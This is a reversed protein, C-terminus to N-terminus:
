PLLSKLWRFAANKTKATLNSGFGPRGQSADYAMICLGVAVSWPGIDLGDPMRTEEFDGMRVPLELYDKVFDPLDPLRAGGGTLVVGAPLLKVRDIKKLHKNTLEFIDSLRASIIDAAQKKSSASSASFNKKMNEAEDITTKFGIALDSTINASGYPLVELSIPLGEEFVALSSTGAGIDILMAGVEKHRKPLVARAAAIPSAIVDEAMFGSLEAVRVVNKIDRSLATIFIAECELKSGVMGTPDPTKFQGDVTFSLAFSHLVERNTLPEINSQCQELARAADFESIEHNARSVMILGKSRVYALDTGGVSLVGSRLRLGSKKEAMVVSAKLSKSTEEIDIIKGRRIGSSPSSGVGLIKLGEGRKDWGAVVSQVGSSGIDIGLVFNKAM